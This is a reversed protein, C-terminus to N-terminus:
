TICRNSRSVTAKALAMRSLPRGTDILAPTLGSSWATMSRRAAVPLKFRHPGFQTSTDCESRSDVVCKRPLLLINDYDFIEM